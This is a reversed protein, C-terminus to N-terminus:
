DNWETHFSGEKDIRKYTHSGFYDRQAQLLNASSHECRIGDLYSLTSNLAPSYIGYEIMAVVVKRLKDQNQNVIASFKESFLLNIKNSGAFGEKIDNLFQARIICGERWILALDGFNIDWDYVKSAERLLEFGQAYSIIKALYLAERLLEIMEEKDVKPNNTNFNFLSSAEIRQQKQTSLYRAIVSETITPIPIGTQFGEMATDKGTGKQSAQDVIMEVLYHDSYEDKRKLIDSTIKILYSELEGKNWEEFVQQIEPISLKLGKLLFSYVETILQLDAYEIGNHVMKVYHGSGATGIYTCCVEQKDTKAAITEFINKVQNYANLNGSPMICPGHLAGYEGGSVGVGLYYIGKELLYHDRRITDKFNSNGCDILIDEKDLLPLLQEIVQDVVKGATVMLIIKRPITLTDIFQQLEFCVEINESKNEKKFQESIEKEYNYTAISFNRSINLALNSGMVGLGYIGIDKKNM